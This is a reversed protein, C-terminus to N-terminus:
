IADAAPDATMHGDARSRCTSSRGGPHTRARDSGDDRRRADGATTTTTTTAGRSIIM